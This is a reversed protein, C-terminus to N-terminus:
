SEKQKGDFCELRRNLEPFQEGTALSVCIRVGDVNDSGTSALSMASIGCYLLEKLLAGGDLGPYCVTFYFGDGIPRDVDMDYPIGFGNALFIKKIASAKEGYSKIDDMFRYSGDNVAKLVAALAHQTSHTIGATTAYITGFVLSHGFNASPYYTLLGKFDADYLTESVVLFAARQGAYSFVKSSSIMLIYNDTYNAVTPQFPAEGPISYDQRFDMAFYALDEVVIVDYKTALTGIIELEEPTFCIWAPNNPNSYLLTSINGKKLYSELKERLKEGRFPYVDFSEEKLGIMKVCQKQISFGPDLFLVTDKKPDRRGATMFATYGGNISGVTPICDRPTVDIDLFLRCFRAIEEKLVPIGRFDPYISAVGNKLAEIEADVAIQPAKLGPIGMELRIFSTGSEKELGDILARMEGISAKRLDRLGMQDLKQNVVQQDILTTQQKVPMNNANM